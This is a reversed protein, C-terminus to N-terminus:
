KLLFISLFWTLVYCCLSKSVKQSEHLVNYHNPKLCQVLISLSSSYFWEVDTSTKNASGNRPFVPFCISSRSSIRSLEKIDSVENGFVVVRLGKEMEEKRQLTYIEQWKGWWHQFMIIVLTLQMPKVNWIFETISIAQGHYILLSDIISSPIFFPSNMDIRLNALNSCYSVNKKCIVVGIIALTIVLSLCRSRLPAAWMCNRSLALATVPAWWIGSDLTRNRVPDAVTLWGAHM